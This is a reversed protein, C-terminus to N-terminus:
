MSGYYTIPGLAQDEAHEGESFDKEIAQRIDELQQQPLAMAASPQM